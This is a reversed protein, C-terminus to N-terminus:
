AVNHGPRASLDVVNRCSDVAYIQDLVPRVAVLMTLIFPIGCECSSGSGESTGKRSTDRVMPEPAYAQYYMRQGSKHELKEAMASLKVADLFGSRQVGGFRNERDFEDVLVIGKFIAADLLLLQLHLDGQVLMDTNM